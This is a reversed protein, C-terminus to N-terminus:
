GRPQLDKPNRPRLVTFFITLVRYVSLGAFVATAAWLFLAYHRWDQRKLFSEMVVATLSFTVLVFSAWISQVLFDMLDDWLGSRHMKEVMPTGQITLLLAFIAGLFGVGIAGVDVTTAFVQELNEPLERHRFLWACAGGSGIAGLWPYAKEWGRGIRNTLPVDGPQTEGHM